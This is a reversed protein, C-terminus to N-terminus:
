VKLNHFIEKSEELNSFLTGMAAFFLVSVLLVIQAHIISNYSEYLM